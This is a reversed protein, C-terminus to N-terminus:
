GYRFTGSELLKEGRYIRVAPNTRESRDQVAAVRNGNPDILKYNLNLQRGSRQVDVSSRFSDTGNNQEEALTLSTLCLLVFLTKILLKKM